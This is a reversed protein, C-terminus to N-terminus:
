HGEPVGEVHPIKFIIKLHLKSPTARGHEIMRFVAGVEQGKGVIPPSDLLM